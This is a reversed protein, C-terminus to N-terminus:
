FQMVERFLVMLILGEYMPLQRLAAEQDAEKPTAVAVSESQVVESSEVANNAVDSSKVPGYNHDVLNPSGDAMTLDEKENEINLNQDNVASILPIM